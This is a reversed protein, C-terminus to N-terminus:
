QHKTIFCSQNYMEMDRTAALIIKEAEWNSRGTTNCSKRVRQGQCVRATEKVEENIVHISHEKRTVESNPTSVANLKSLGEDIEALKSLFSDQHVSETPTSSPNTEKHPRLLIQNFLSPTENRAEKVSINNKLDTIGNALPEAHNPHQM